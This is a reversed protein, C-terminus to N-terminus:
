RYVTFILFIAIMSSDTIVTGIPLCLNRKYKYIIALQHGNWKFVAMSNWSRKAIQLPPPTLGINYELSQTHWLQQCVLVVGGCCDLKPGTKSTVHLNINSLILVFPLLWFYNIINQCTICKNVIICKVEKGFLFTRDLIAVQLYKRFPLYKM